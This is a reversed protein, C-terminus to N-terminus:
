EITWFDIPLDFSTPNLEMQPEKKEIVEKLYYTNYGDKKNVATIRVHMGYAQTKMMDFDTESKPDIALMMLEKKLIDLVEKKVLYFKKEIVVGDQPGGIIRMIWTILRRAKGDIESTIEMIECDYQGEPVQFMKTNM